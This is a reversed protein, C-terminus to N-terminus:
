LLCQYFQQRKKDLDKDDWVSSKHCITKFECGKCDYSSKTAPRPPPLKKNSGSAMDQMTKAQWSIVDWWKDNREVKYWKMESNNKNEYMLLGYDCNLIHVYCTLQIQYYKHPGKRELQNDWASMSITKMDGVVIKGDKPLFDKNFTYRVGKFKDDSLTSADLLVDCHGYINLEKSEVSAEEYSFESCGCICKEPKFVGHINDLGYARTEGKSIIKKIDESSLKELNGNQDFIKCSKNKCRWAGRLIGMEDFYRSWREHMNHGKDFLRLMRSDFNDENVSIYGKTVYHKYQQLRLCKGWESPHYTHYQRKGADRVYTKWKMYTDVLGYFTSIEKPTFTFDDM